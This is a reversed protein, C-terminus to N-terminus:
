QTSANRLGAPVGLGREVERSQPPSERRPWLRQSESGRLSVGRTQLLLSYSLLSGSSPLLPHPILYGQYPHLCAKHGEWSWLEHGRDGLIAAPHGEPSFLGHLTQPQQQSVLLVFHGARTFLPKWTAADGLLLHHPACSCPPHSCNDGHAASCAAATGGAMPLLAPPAPFLTLIPQSRTSHPIQISIGM